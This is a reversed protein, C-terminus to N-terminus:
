RNNRNRIIRSNTQIAYCQDCENRISRKTRHILRNGCNECIQDCEAEAQRILENIEDNHVSMYFRLGGFKQKVQAAYYESREDDPIKLILEELKSSLNRLVPEWGDGCEFGYYFPENKDNRARYLNPFDRVLAEELDRDM